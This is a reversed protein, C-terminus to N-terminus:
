LRGCGKAFIKNENRYNAKINLDECLAILVPWLLIRQSDTIILTFSTSVLYIIILLMLKKELYTLNKKQKIFIYIIRLIPIVYVIIIFIGLQAITGFFGIDDLYYKGYPGRIISFYYSIHPFGQAWIPNELFSKWYYQMGELRSVTSNAHEGTISFGNFFHEIVGNYVLLIISLFLLNIFLLRKKDLNNNYICIIFLCFICIITFARTQQVFFLLIWGIVCYVRYFITKYKSNCGDILQLTNYLLFFNGLSELGIRIRGSRLMSIGSFYELFDFLLMGTLLFSMAQFAIVILWIFSIINLTDLFKNRGNKKKNMYYLIPFSWLVWLFRFSIGITDIVTQNKYKFISYLSTLFISLIVLWLYNSLYIMNKNFKKINKISMFFYIIVGLTAVIIRFKAGYLYETPYSFLYFTHYSLIAIVVFIVWIINTSKIKLNM